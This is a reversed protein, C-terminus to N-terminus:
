RSLSRKPPLGIAKRGRATVDWWDDDYVREHDSLRPRGGYTGRETTLLGRVLLSRLTAEVIARGPSAELMEDDLTTTTEGSMSCLELLERELATLPQADDVASMFGGCREPQEEMVSGAFRMRSRRLRISILIPL